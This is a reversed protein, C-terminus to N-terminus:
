SLSRLVGENPRRLRRGVIFSRISRLRAEQARLARTWLRRGEATHLPTRACRARLVELFDGGDSPSIGEATAVAAFFRDASRAAYSALRLDALAASLANTPQALPLSAGANSATWGAQRRLAVVERAPKADSFPHDHACAELLVVRDSASLAMADSLRWADRMRVRMLEQISPHLGALRDAVRLAFARDLRHWSSMMEDHDIDPELLDCSDGLVALPDARLAEVFPVPQRHPADIISRALGASVLRGFGDHPLRYYGRCVAAVAPTWEAAAYRDRWFFLHDAKRDGDLMLTYFLERSAPEHAPVYGGHGPYSSPLWRMLANHAVVPSDLRGAPLPSGDGFVDRCLYTIDFDGTAILLEVLHKTRKSKGPTAADPSPVQSGSALLCARGVHDSQGKGTM